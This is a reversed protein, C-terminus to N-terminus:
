GPSWTSNSQRRHCEFAERELEIGHYSLGSNLYQFGYLIYFLGKGFKRYQEVHVLEHLLLDYYKMNDESFDERYFIYNGHTVATKGWPIGGANGIIRVKSFDVSPYFRQLKDKLSASLPMRKKGKNIVKLFLYYIWGAIFGIVLGTLASIGTRIAKFLIVPLAFIKKLESM